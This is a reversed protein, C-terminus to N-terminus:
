FTFSFIFHYAHYTRDLGMIVLCDLLFFFDLHFPNTSFTPKSGPIFSHLLSSHRLHPHHSLRTLLHILLHISALITLSVSNIQLNIRFVLYHM